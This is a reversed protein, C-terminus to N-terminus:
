AHRVPIGLGEVIRRAWALKRRKTAPDRGEKAVPAEWDFGVLVLGAAGLHAALCCARDGDTFGGFNRVRGRPAAQTTGVLPGPFRPVHRRLADRNDGHAHVFAPVGRANAAAQLGVDGDLDTVLALPRALPLAAGAAGDTVLLPADPPARRVHDPGAAAGVVWAERGAIARRLVDLDAPPRTALLVDLEDRAAEDAAPDFGFDALIARYAPEWDRWEVRPAGM